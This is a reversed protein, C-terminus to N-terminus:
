FNKLLRLWYRCYTFESTKFKCWVKNFGINQILLYFNACNFRYLNHLGLCWPRSLSRQLLQRRPIQNNQKSIITPVWKNNWVFKPRGYCFSLVLRLCVWPPALVPWDSWRLTKGERNSRSVSSFTRNGPFVKSTALQNGRM